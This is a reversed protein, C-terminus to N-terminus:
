YPTVVWQSGSWRKLPKVTWQSGTWVKIPKAVWSGSFVKIQGSTGGQAQDFFWNEMVTKLSQDNDAWFIQKSLIHNNRRKKGWNGVWSSRFPFKGQGAM